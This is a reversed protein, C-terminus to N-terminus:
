QASASALEASSTDENDTVRSQDFQITDHLVATAANTQTVLDIPRVFVWLMALSCLALGLRVPLGSAPKIEGVQKGMYAASVIRLYYAAGIAANIVGIVALVYMPGHFAHQQPMSFAGSFIYLKGLFGATPPFGMLSFVCVALALAAAPARSALGSLDDLTEMDRDENRAPAILTVRPLDDGELPATDRLFRVTRHGFIGDGIMGGVLLLTILALAFLVLEM